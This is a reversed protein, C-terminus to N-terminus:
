AYYLEWTVSTPSSFTVTILNTDSNVFANTIRFRRTVGAAIAVAANTGTNGAPTKGPDVFTVNISGGSGNKIELIARSNVLSGSITDSASVAQPNSVVGARTINTATLLAV